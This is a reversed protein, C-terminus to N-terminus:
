SFEEPSYNKKRRSILAIVILAFLGGAMDILSDYISSFRMRTQAQHFEDLLSWVAVVGFSYVAWNARLRDASDARFARFLLASLVAYEVFHASKRIAFHLRAAVAPSFDSVIWALIKKILGETNDGSFADTSFYFMLVIMMLVPSWYKIIRIAVPSRARSVEEAM